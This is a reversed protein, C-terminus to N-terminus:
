IYPFIWIRSKSPMRWPQFGHTLMFISLWITLLPRADRDTMVPGTVPYVVIAPGVLPLQSLCIPGSCHSYARIILSPLVSHEYALIEWALATGHSSDDIIPRLLCSNLLGKLTERLLPVDTTYPGVEGFVETFCWSRVQFPDYRWGNAGM